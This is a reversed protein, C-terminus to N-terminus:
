REYLTSHHRIITKRRFTTVEKEEELAYKSQGTSKLQDRFGLKAKLSKKDFKALKSETKNVKKLVPKVSYFLM